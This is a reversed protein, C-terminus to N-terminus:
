RLVSVYQRGGVAQKLEARASPQLRAQQVVNLHAKSAKIRFAEHSDSPQLVARASSPPTHAVLEWPRSSCCGDGSLLLSTSNRHQAKKPPM